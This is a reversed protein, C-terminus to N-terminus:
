LIKLSLMLLKHPNAFAHPLFVAVGIVDVIKKQLAPWSPPDYKQFFILVSGQLKCHKICRSPRFHQYFALKINMDQCFKAFDACADFFCYFCHMIKVFVACADFLGFLFVKTVWLGGARVLHESEQKKNKTSAYAHRTVRVKM